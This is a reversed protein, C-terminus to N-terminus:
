NGERNRFVVGKAKGMVSRRRGEKCCYQELGGGSKGFYRLYNHIVFDEDLTYSM